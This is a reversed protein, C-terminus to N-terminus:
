GHRGGRLLRAIAGIRLLVLGILILGLWLKWHESVLALGEELLMLVTAGILAGGLQGTGGLVVMVILEGSRGWHMYAPAVFGTAIALFAGALAAVAGSLTYAVLRARFVDIGLAEARAENQRTAQLTQGFPSAVVRTLLGYLLALLAVVGLGLVIDRKFVDFGFLTPRAWLTLGDDGGYASLSTFVFYAMQAFALTIMIFHVGRTRLVILGTLAAYAAGVLAALPLLLTIEALGHEGGIGVAYAGLGLYAAHGFSVLGGQGLVFSLALAAMAFVAIRTAMTLWFPQGFAAGAIMALGILGIVGWGLAPSAAIRPWIPPPNNDNAATMAM